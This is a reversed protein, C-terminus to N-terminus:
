RKEESPQEVPAPELKDSIKQLAEVILDGYPLDNGRLDNIVDQLTRM